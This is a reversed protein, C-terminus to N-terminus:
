QFLKFIDKLQDECHNKVSEPTTEDRKHAALLLICHKGNKLSGCYFYLREKKRRNKVELVKIKKGGYDFSFAEKCETNTQIDYYEKFNELNSAEYLGRVLDIFNKRKQIDDKIDSAISKFFKTKTMDSVEDTVPTCVSWAKGFALGPTLAKEANRQVHSYIADITVQKLIMM